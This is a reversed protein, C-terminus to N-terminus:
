SMKGEFQFFRDRVEQSYDTVRYGRYPVANDSIDFQDYAVLPKSDPCVRAVINLSLLYGRFVIDSSDAFIGNQDHFGMNFPGVRKIQCFGFQKLFFSLIDESYGFYHYDLPNQQGGFLVNVLYWRDQLTMNRDLYM